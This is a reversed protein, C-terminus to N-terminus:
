RNEEREMKRRRGGGEVRGRNMKECRPLNEAMEVGDKVEEVEEL